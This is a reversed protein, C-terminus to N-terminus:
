LGKTYFLTSCVMITNYDFSAIETFREPLEETIYLNTPCYYVGDYFTMAHYGMNEIWIIVFDPKVNLEKNALYMFYISFDECDGTRLFETEIPSQFYEGQEYVSDYDYVYDIQSNTYECLASLDQCGTNAEFGYSCGMLLSSIILVYVIYLKM